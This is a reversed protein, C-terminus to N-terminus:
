HAPNIFINKTSVYIQQFSRFNLPFELFVHLVSLFYLWQLGQIYDFAYLSVSAIWIALITFLWKKPIAHWQIVSTKSFWNLYHYTYVFAIFRMIAIGTNSSFATELTFPAKSIISALAENISLIPGATYIKMAYASTAFPSQFNNVLFISAVCIIFVVLSLISSVSKNKLAGTLIFLATFVFVHILTPLLIGFVLSFVPLESLLIGVIIGLGTLILKYIIKDFLVSALAWVFATLVLINALKYEDSAFLVVFTLLLTLPVLPLYDYKKNTFYNRKHLWGIETLYHLPGLVGYSFLFLEFPLLFAVALSVIMLLINAVDIKTTNVM